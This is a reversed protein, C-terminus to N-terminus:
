RADRTIALNLHGSRTLTLVRTLFPRGIGILSESFESAVADGNPELWAALLDNFGEM